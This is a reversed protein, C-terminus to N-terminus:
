VPLKRARKKCKRRKAKKKIKKCKKLARARRGTPAAAVPPADTLTWNDLGYGEGSAAVVDPTLDAFTAIALVSKFQAQTASPCTTMSASSCYFWGPETIPFEVHQWGPGPIPVDRFISQNGDSFSVQGNHGPTPALSPNVDFSWTGGYNAVYSRPPVTPSYYFVFDCPFLSPCGTEAVADTVQLHGGPNGGSASEVAAAASGNQFTTWGQNDSDFTYSRNVAGAAAPLALAAMAAVAAGTALWAALRGQRRM